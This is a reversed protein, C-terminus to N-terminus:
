KVPSSLSSSHTSVEAFVDSSSNPGPAESVAIRRRDCEFLVRVVRTAIGADVDDYEGSRNASTAKTTTIEVSNACTIGNPFLLINVASAIGTTSSLLTALLCSM